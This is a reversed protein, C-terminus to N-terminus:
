GEVYAYYPVMVNDIFVMVFDDRGSVSYFETGVELITADFDKFKKKVDTRKIEGLKENSKLELETVWDLNSANVFATENYVLFDISKDQQYLAKPSANNETSDKASNSCASLSLTLVCFLIFVINKKM